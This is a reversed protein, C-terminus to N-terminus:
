KCSQCTGVLELRHRIDTYGDKLLTREIREIACDHIIDVKHCIRCIVHHHHHSPDNLEYHIVDKELRIPIVLNKEEFLSLSRYVSAKDMCNKPLKKYIQDATFPGHEEGLLRLILIRPITTSVGHSKLLSKIENDDMTRHHCHEHGDSIKETKVLKYNPGKKSTGKM